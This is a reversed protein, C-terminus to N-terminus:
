LELCKQQGRTPVYLCSWGGGAAVAWSLEATSDLLMRLVGGPLHPCYCKGTERPKPLCICLLSVLICLFTLDWGDKPFKSGLHFSKVKLISEKHETQIKATTVGNGKSWDCRVTNGQVCTQREWMRVAINGWMKVAGQFYIKAGTSQMSKKFRQESILGKESLTILTNTPIGKIKKGIEWYKLM